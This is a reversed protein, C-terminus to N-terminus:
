AAPVALGRVLFQGPWGDVEFTDRREFGCSEYFRVLDGAGGGYCDVRLSSVGEHMGREDAFSLLHRGVGRAHPDRGAILMRIYLESETAPPAYAMPAGLVLAGLVGLEPHEPHEAVWAGPLECAATVTDVRREQASWPESGWQHENGFSAFWAIAQDFLSLVGGVDARSARRIVWPATTDTASRPAPADPTKAAPTM